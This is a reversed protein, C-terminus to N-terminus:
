ARMLREACRLVNKLPQRMTGTDEKRDISMHWEEPTPFTVRLGRDIYPQILGLLAEQTTIKAPPRTMLRADYQPMVPPPTPKPAMEQQRLGIEQRLQVDTKKFIDPVNYGQAIARLQHLSKGELM